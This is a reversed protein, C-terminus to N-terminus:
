ERELHSPLAQLAQPHPDQVVAIPSHLPSPHTPQGPITLQIALSSQSDEHFLPEVEVVVFDLYHKLVRIIRGKYLMEFASTDELQIVKGFAIPFCCGHCVRVFTWKYDYGLVDDDLKTAIAPYPHDPDFFSQPSSWLRFKRLHM